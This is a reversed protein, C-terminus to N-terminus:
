AAEGEEVWRYHVVPRGRSSDTPKVKVTELRGEKAVVDLAAGIEDKTLGKAKRVLETHRILKHQILLGVVKTLAEQQRETPIVPSQGLVIEVDQAPLDALVEDVRGPMAQGFVAMANRMAEIIKGQALVQRELAEVRDNCACEM